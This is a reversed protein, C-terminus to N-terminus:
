VSASALLNMKLDVGDAPIPGAAANFYLIERAVEDLVKRSRYMGPMGLLQWYLSAETRV